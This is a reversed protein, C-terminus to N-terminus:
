RRKRKDNGQGGRKRGLLLILIAIGLAAVGLGEWRLEIGRVLGALGSAVTPLEYSLRLKPRQDQQRWQSSAFQFEMSVTGEAELLLGHNESPNALWYRALQTVDISVWRQGGSLVAEGLRVPIMDTGAGSAGPAGWPEGTSAQLWNASTESWPRVMRYARLNLKGPNSAYTVWLDLTASRITADQPLQGIDFYIMGVRVRNQRVRFEASQGLASGQNWSDLYTDAAGAYGDLGEQLVM